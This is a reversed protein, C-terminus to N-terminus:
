GLNLKSNLKFHAHTTKGEYDSRGGVLQIAGESKKLKKFYKKVLNYRAERAEEFTRHVSSVILICCFIVCLHGLLFHM